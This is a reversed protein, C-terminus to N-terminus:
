ILLSLVQGSQQNALGLLSIASQLLVSQRNLEATESAYDVDRITSLASSLGEKTANMQNLATGVQFRQFGGIRGQAKAVQEAAEAAITAAQNPDTLLSYAGGSKLSSLYGLSGSGLQQSYLGDIGITARTTSDTGLQFTAGGTTVTFSSTGTTQNFSEPLNFTVSLDNSAIMGSTEVDCLCNLLLLVEAFVLPLM